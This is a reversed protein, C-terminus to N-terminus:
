INSLVTQRWQRYMCAASENLMIWKTLNSVVYNLRGYSHSLRMAYDVILIVCLRHFSDPPLPCCLLLRPSPLGGTPDLSFARTPGPSKSTPRRWLQLMQRFQVTASTKLFRIESIRWRLDLSIPTATYALKRSPRVTATARCDSNCFICLLIYVTKHQTTLSRTDNM